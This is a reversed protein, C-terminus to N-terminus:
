LDRWAGNEYLRFKNLTTSYYIAGNEGTPESSLNPLVVGNDKIYFVSSEGSFAVVGTATSIINGTATSIINGTATSSINGTATSIISAGSTSEINSLSNINILGRSSINVSTTDFVQVGHVKSNPLDIWGLIMLDAAGANTGDVFGGLAKYDALNNGFLGVYPLEVGVDIVGNVISYGQFTQTFAKSERPQLIDSDLQWLSDASTVQVIMNCPNGSPNFALLSNLASILLASSGYIVGDVEVDGFAYAGLIQGGLKNYIRLRGNQDTTAYLSASNTYNFTAGSSTVVFQLGGTVTNIEIDQANLTGIFACIMFIVKKM